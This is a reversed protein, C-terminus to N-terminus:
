FDMDGMGGIGGGMGGPASPGAKKEPKEGVMAETTILLRRGLGRGPLALARGQDPRHHRGEGPRRVRRGARRLGM